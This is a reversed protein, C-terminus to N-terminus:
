RSLRYTKKYIKGEKMTLMGNAMLFAFYLVFAICSYKIIRGRKPEADVDKLHPIIVLLEAVAMLLTLVMGIINISTTTEAMSEIPALKSMFTAFDWLGHLFIVSWINKTKYYIVGFVIGTAAAGVTQIITAIVDQGGLINGVHMLGFLLGSIIISYWVGKKTKGFQELFENLLWGRCLFEECVGIFFCGLALNFVAHVSNFSGLFVGLLIMGCSFIIYFLGYFLGTRFRKKDQTFVYSNKFLLLVILVLSALIAETIVLTGQPYDMISEYVFTSTKGWIIETTVFFVIIMIATFLVAAWLKGKKNM